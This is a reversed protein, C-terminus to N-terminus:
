PLQKQTNHEDQGYDCIVLAPLPANNSNSASKNEIKIRNREINQAHINNIIIKHCYFGM